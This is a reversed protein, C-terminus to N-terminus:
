FFFTQAWWGCYSSRHLVTECWTWFPLFLFSRGSSQLAAAPLSSAVWGLIGNAKGALGSCFYLLVSPVYLSPTHKYLVGWVHLNFAVFSNNKSQALFNAVKLKLMAIMDWYFPFLFIKLFIFNNLFFLNTEHLWLLSCISLLSLDLSFFARYLNSHTKFPVYAEILFLPYLCM